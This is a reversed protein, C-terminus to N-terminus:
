AAIREAMPPPEYTIAVFDAGNSRYATVEYDPIQLEKLYNVAWNKFSDRLNKVGIDPLKVEIAEFPKLGHALKTQVEVKEVLKEIAPKRGRKGRVLDKSSCVRVPM